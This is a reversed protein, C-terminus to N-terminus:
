QTKWETYEYSVVLASVGSSGRSATITTTNTFVIKALDQNATIVADDSSVGLLRLETHSLVVATVTATKTTDGIAMSITGRTVYPVMGAGGPDPLVYDSVVAQIAQLLTVTKAVDASPGDGSAADTLDSSKVATQALDEDNILLLDAPTVTIGGNQSSLVQNIVNYLLLYWTLDITVKGTADAQGLPASQPPITQPLSGSM